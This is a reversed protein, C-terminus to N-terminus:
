MESRGGIERNPNAKAESHLVVHHTVPVSVCQVGIHKHVQRCCVASLNQSVLHAVRNEHRLLSKAYALRKWEM